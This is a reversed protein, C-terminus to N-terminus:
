YLIYQRIIAEDIPNDAKIHYVLIEDGCKRALMTTYSVIATETKRNICYYTNQGITLTYPESYTNTYGYDAYYTDYWECYTKIWSEESAVSWGRTEECKPTYLYLDLYPNTGTIGTLWIMGTDVCEGIEEDSPSGDNSAAIAKESWVKLNPTIQFSTNYVNNAYLSRGTYLGGMEYTGECDWNGGYKAIFLKIIEEETLPKQSTEPETTTEPETSTEPDLSTAQDTSSESESPTESIITSPQETSTEEVRTGETSITTEDKGLSETVNEGDKNGCSMLLSSTITTFLLMSVIKKKM